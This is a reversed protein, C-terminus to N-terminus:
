RYLACLCQLKIFTFQPGYILNAPEGLKQKGLPFSLTALCFVSVTVVFFPEILFHHNEWAKDKHIFIHCHIAMNRTHRYLVMEMTYVM